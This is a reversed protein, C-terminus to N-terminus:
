IHLGAYVSRLVFSGQLLTIPVVLQQKQNQKEKQRAAKKNPKYNKKLLHISAKQLYKTIDLNNTGKWQFNNKNKSSTGYNKWSNYVSKSLKYSLGNKVSACLKTWCHQYQLTLALTM